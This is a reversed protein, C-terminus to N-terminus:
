RPVVRDPEVVGDEALDTGAADGFGALEVRIEEIGAVPALVGVVVNEVVLLRADQGVVGVAGSRVLRHLESLELFAESEAV